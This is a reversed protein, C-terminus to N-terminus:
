ALRIEHAELSAQLEEVKIEAMDKSEEIAVVIHDFRPTLTRMVKEVIMLNTLQEGCSKMQNTVSLLRIFFEAVSEQDNMQLLEYQRRLTQLKVKKLKDAGAYYKDLIDWAEKATSVSVIKEFNDPDVCQHIIFLAKCDKKKADRHAARQADTPNEELEQLGTSVIEAISPSFHSENPRM